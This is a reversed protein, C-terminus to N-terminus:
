VFLSSFVVDWLVSLSNTEDEDTFVMKEGGVVGGNGRVKRTEQGGGRSDYVSANKGIVGVVGVRKNVGVGKMVEGPVGSLAINVRVEVAEGGLVAVVKVKWGWAYALPDEVLALGVPDRWASPGSREGKGVTEEEVGVIGSGVM